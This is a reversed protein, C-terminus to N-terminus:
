NVLGALSTAFAKEEESAGIANKTVQAQLHRNAVVILWRLMELQLCVRVKGLQHEVTGAPGVQVGKAANLRAQQFQLYFKVSKIQTLLRSNGSAQQPLSITHMLM